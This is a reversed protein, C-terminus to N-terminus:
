SKVDTGALTSSTSFLSALAPLCVKRHKRRPLRIPPLLCPHNPYGLSLSKRCRKIKQPRGFPSPSTPTRHQPLRSSGLRPQVTDQLFRAVTDSVPRHDACNRLAHPSWRLASYADEEAVLKVWAKPLAEQIERERAIGRYDEQAALFAEESCVAEYRLYRQLRQVSTPSTMARPRSRAQITRREDYSGTELRTPFLEVRTRRDPSGTSRGSPLRIRIASTRCQREQRSAKVEIFIRPKSAPHCLAYDVRRGEVTYEPISSKRTTSRGDWHTGLLRRVIGQRFRRKTRTAGGNAPERSYRRIDQELM